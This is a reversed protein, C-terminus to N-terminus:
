NNCCFTVPDALTATGQPSGGTPTCTSGTVGFGAKFYATSAVNAACTSGATNGLTTNVNCQSQSGVLGWATACSGGSAKGTCATCDRADTLTRYTVFRKAYDASPCPVDGGQHICIRTFPAAPVPTAACKAASPCATVQPAGCAVTESAYAPPPLTKTPSPYSCGGADVLTPATVKMGAYAFGPNKCNGTSLTDVFLPNGGCTTSTYSEINATCVGNGAFTPNGCDCAAPAATVGQKADVEKQTYQTAPCAQPKGASPGDYVASPGVWGQPARPLCGVPCDEPPLVDIAVDGGGGADTSGGSDNGGSDNGGADPEPPPTVADGVCALYGFASSSVVIALFIARQNM